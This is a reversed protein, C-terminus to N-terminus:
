LLIHYRNLLKFYLIYWQIHIYSGVTIWKIDTPIVCACCSVSYIYMYHLLTPLPPAHPPSSLLPSSLSLFSLLEWFPISSCYMLIYSTPLSLKRFKFKRRPVPAGEGSRFNNIVDYPNPFLMMTITLNMSHRDHCIGNAPTYNCNERIFIHRISANRLLLLHCVITITRTSIGTATSFSILRQLREPTWKCM